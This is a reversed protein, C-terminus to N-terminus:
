GRVKSEKTNNLAVFQGFGVQQLTVNSFKSFTGNAAGGLMAMVKVGNKQMHVKDAWLEDYREHDVPHDNLTINGPANIHFAAIIVHTVSGTRLLPKLSVFLNQNNPDHHTQAYMILRPLYGQSKGDTPPVLRTIGSDGPTAILGAILLSIVTLIRFLSM